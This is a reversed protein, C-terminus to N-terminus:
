QVIVLPLYLAHQTASMVRVPLAHMGGEDQAYFVVGYEGAEGFGGPYSARYWGEQQADAQLLVVPVGLNPTTDAPERFSPGYVAAWVLDLAQAGPEVRAALRGTSGDVSVLAHQVTPGM